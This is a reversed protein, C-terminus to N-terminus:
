NQRRRGKGSKKKRRLFFGKKEELEEEVKDSSEEVSLIEDFTSTSESNYSYPNTIVPAFYTVRQRDDMMEYVSDHENDPIFSFLYSVSRSYLKRIASDFAIIEAPKIGHVTIKYDKEYFLLEQFDDTQMSGFDFVFYEYGMQYLREIESLNKFMDVGQYTVWGLSEDVLRAEGYIKLLSDIYGTSNIEVYATKKGKMQLYKVIQLAQTTTGIRSISGAVGITKRPVNLVNYPLKDKLVNVEGNTDSVMQEVNPVGEFFLKIEDRLDGVYLSNCINKIGAAICATIAVSSSSMGQAVLAVSAASGTKIQEITFKLEPGSLYLDAIDVIIYDYPKALARNILNSSSLIYGSYEVECSYQAAVEAVWYGKQETGLYLAKKM